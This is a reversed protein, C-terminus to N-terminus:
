PWRKLADAIWEFISRRPKTQPKLLHAFRPPEAAIEALTKGKCYDDIERQQEDTIGTTTGDRNLIKLGM